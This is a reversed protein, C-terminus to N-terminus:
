DIFDWYAYEDFPDAQRNLRAFVQTSGTAPNLDYLTCTALWNFTPHCDAGVYVLHYTGNADPIPDVAIGLANGWEGKPGSGPPLSAALPDIPLGMGDVPRGTSPDLRWVGSSSNSYMFGDPHNVLGCGGVGDGFWEPHAAYLGSLSLDVTDVVQHVTSGHLSITN